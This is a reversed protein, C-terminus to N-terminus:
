DLILKHMKNTQEKRWNHFHVTWFVFSNREYQLSFVGVLALLFIHRCISHIVPLNYLLRCHVLFFCPSYLNMVVRRELLWCINWLHVICNKCSVTLKFWIQSFSTEFSQLVPACVSSWVLVQLDRHFDTPHFINIVKAALPHYAAVAPLKIDGTILCPVGCSTHKRLSSTALFASTIGNWRLAGLNRVPPFLFGCSSPIVWVCANRYM